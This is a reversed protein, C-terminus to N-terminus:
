MWFLGHFQLKPKIHVHKRTIPRFMYNSIINYLIVYNNKINQQGHMTIYGFLLFWCFAGNVKL